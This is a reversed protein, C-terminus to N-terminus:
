ANNEGGYYSMFVEELSQSVVDIGTVPHRDLATTLVKINDKIAVQVKDGNISIIELPETAFDKAAKENRLSISYIKRQAKKLNEVTEITVFRGRKIIGIRDCTREVEEFSHSSMLITKGKSKENLILEIFKNQMLPDLGSTPEDLILTSPDHMFASVIGIKQKMGKSMKKIRGSPDLEFYSILENMKEFNKMGRMNAIFKLYGIGSMDDFFAIEGPLYGLDRQIQEADTRCNLQGIHCEGKDANLFGLLHRITTTKGAGNPGLYGFVEGKQIEFSLDFIGRNKGYDKTLNSVTIVSM